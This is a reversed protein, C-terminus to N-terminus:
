KNGTSFAIGGKIKNLYQEDINADDFTGMDRIIACATDMLAFMIPCGSGEGLRMNLNLPAEVGLASAAYAFGQENSAHSPFMFEKVLYNVRSAALATVISIFGDIVVPVRALAGGIFVGTMAAIDFGGVKALVDIPDSTNPKNKKL